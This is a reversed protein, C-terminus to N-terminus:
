IGNPNEVFVPPMCRNVDDTTDNTCATFLLSATAVMILVKFFM